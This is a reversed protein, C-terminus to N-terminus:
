GHIQSFSAYAYRANALERDTRNINKALIYANDIQFSEDVVAQQLTGRRDSAQEARFRQSVM